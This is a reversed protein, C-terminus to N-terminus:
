IPLLAFPFYAALPFDTDVSKPYLVVSTRSVFVIRRRYNDDGFFGTQKRCFCYVNNKRNPLGFLDIKQTENIQERM